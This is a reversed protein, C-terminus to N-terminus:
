WPVRWERADFERRTATVVSTIAGAPWDPWTTADHTPVDHLSRTLGVGLMKLYAEKATWARLFMALQEHEPLAVWQALEGDTLVRRAVRDLYRRPRVVEVDVGVREPAIAVVAVDSSHSLSFSTGGDGALAPRGHEHSGCVACTLEFRLAAPDGDVRAGLVLRLAGHAVVYRRRADDHRATSHAHERADLL